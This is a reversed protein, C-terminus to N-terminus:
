KLNEDFWAVSRAILDAVHSPNQFHHGENEYVVLKTKM